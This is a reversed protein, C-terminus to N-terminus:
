LSIIIHLAEESHLIILDKDFNLKPDQMIDEEAALVRWRGLTKYRQM